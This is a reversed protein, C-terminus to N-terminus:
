EDRDIYKEKISVCQSTLGIEHMKHKQRYHFICEYVFYLFVPQSSM